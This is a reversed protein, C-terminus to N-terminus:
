CNDCDTVQECYVSAALDDGRKIWTIQREIEEDKSHSTPVWWCNASNRSGCGCNTWQDFYCRMGPFIIYSSVGTKWSFWDINNCGKKLAQSAGNFEPDEFVTGAYDDDGCHEVIGCEASQAVNDYVTKDSRDEAVWLPKGKCEGNDFFACAASVGPTVFYSAIKGVFEPHFANCGTYLLQRDAPQDIHFKSQLYIIGVKQRDKCNLSVVGAQSVAGAQNDKPLFALAILVTILVTPYPIMTMELSSQYSPKSM